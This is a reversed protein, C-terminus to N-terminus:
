IREESSRWARWQHEPELERGRDRPRARAAGATRRYIHAHRPVPRSGASIRALQGAYIGAPATEASQLVAQAASVHSLADANEQCAYPGAQFSRLRDAVIALLVEQTIGNVGAEAIPGNQFQIDWV